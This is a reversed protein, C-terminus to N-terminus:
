DRNLFLKGTDIMYSYLRSGVSISAIKKKISPTNSLITIIISFIIFYKISAIIYGGARYLPTNQPEEKLFFKEILKFAGVVVGFVTFFSIAELLAENTTSFITHLSNSLPKALRSALFIGGIIGFFNTLELFLGSILGKLGFFLSFLIAGLDLLAEGKCLQL